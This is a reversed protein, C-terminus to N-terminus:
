DERLIKKIELRYGLTAEDLKDKQFETLDPALTWYLDELRDRVLLMQSQLQEDKMNLMRINDSRKQPVELQIKMKMQYGASSGSLQQSQLAM